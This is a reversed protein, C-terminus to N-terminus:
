RSQLSSLIVENSASESNECELDELIYENIMHALFQGSHTLM